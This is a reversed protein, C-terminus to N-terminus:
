SSFANRNEDRKATSRGRAARRPGAVGLVKVTCALASPVHLNEVAVEVEVEARQIGRIRHGDVNWWCGTRTCSPHSERIENGRVHTQIRGSTIRHLHPVADTRIKDGIQSVM